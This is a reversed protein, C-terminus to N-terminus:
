VFYVIVHIELSISCIKRLELEFVYVAVTNGQSIVVNQLHIQHNRLAATM